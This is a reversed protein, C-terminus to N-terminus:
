LTEFLAAMLAIRRPVDALVIHETLSHAGGGDPGLGDLTPCGVAATFNGDSAGGTRAEGLRFGLKEALARARRYIRRSEPTRELAGRNRGGELRMSCLKNAPKLSRLGADVREGEEDTWYRVDFRCRSKAAVVNTRTGGSITGVNITTGRAPDALRCIERVQRAIEHVASAGKEPEIGAHAARGTVELTYASVGKRRTKAAGGPASPEVVLAMRSARAEAEIRERSDPSGIEEDCTVLFSISSRPGTGQEALLRLATISVALGAKMDYIGPGFAAGDAASFPFRGLTGHVHVTDMHGVVLVPARASGGRGPFRGVLHVGLGPAPVREVSGGANAFAAELVKAVRLNAEEDRSPSESEVLTRLLAMCEPARHEALAASVALETM